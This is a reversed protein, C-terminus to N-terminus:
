SLGRQKANTDERDKRRLAPVRYVGGPVGYPDQGRLGCHGWDLLRLATRTSRLGQENKKSM